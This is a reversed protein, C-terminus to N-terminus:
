RQNTKDTTAVTLRVGLVLPHLAAAISHARQGRFWCQRTGSFWRTSTSRAVHSCSTTRTVYIFVLARGQLTRPTLGTRSTATVVACFAVAYRFANKPRRASPMMREVRPKLELLWFIYSPRHVLSTDSCLLYCGLPASFHLATCLRCLSCGYSLTAVAHVRASFNL